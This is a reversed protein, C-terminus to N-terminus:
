LNGDAIRATIWDNFRPVNTFVAYNYLDCGDLSSLAASTIGRLYYTNSHVVFVGNGGDGICEGTGNRHGACFTRQSSLQELDQSSLFCEENSNQIPVDKKNLVNKVDEDYGTRRHSVSYGKTISMIVSDSEFLCIPQVYRNFNIDDALTLIAVDSDYSESNINWDPHIKISEVDVSTRGREFSASINYVGLTM